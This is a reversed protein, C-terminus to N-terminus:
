INKLIEQSKKIIINKLFFFCTTQVFQFKIVFFWDCKSIHKELFETHILM